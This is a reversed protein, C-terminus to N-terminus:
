PADPAHLLFRFTAAIRDKRPGHRNGDRVKRAVGYFKLRGLCSDPNKKGTVDCLLSKAMQFEGGYRLLSLRWALFAARRASEDHAPIIRRIFDPVPQGKVEDVIIEIKDSRKFSWDWLGTLREIYHGPSERLLGGQAQAGMWNGIVLAASEDDLPFRSRRVLVALRYLADTYEGDPGVRFAPSAAARLLQELPSEDRRRATTPGSAPDGGHDAEPDAIRYSSEPADTGRTTAPGFDRRDSYGETGNEGQGHRSNKRPTARENEHAISNRFPDAVDPGDSRCSQEKRSECEEVRWEESKVRGEQRKDRPVCPWDMPDFSMVSEHDDKM